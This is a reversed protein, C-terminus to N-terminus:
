GDATDDEARLGRDTPAYISTGGADWRIRYRPIPDGRLVEEIVGHRPRQLPRSGADTLRRRNQPAVIRNGVEFAVGVDECKRRTQGTQGTPGGGVPPPDGRM